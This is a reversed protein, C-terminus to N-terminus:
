KRTIPETSRMLWQKTKDDKLLPLIKARIDAHYENLWQLQRDSLMDVKVLSQQIPVLTITEFGRFQKDNFHHTTTRDVVVVLSEIRIGFKGDEYYGPENSVIM